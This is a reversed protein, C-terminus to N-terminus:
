VAGTIVRGYQKTVANDFSEQEADDSTMLTTGNFGHTEGRFFRKIAEGYSESGAPIVDAEFGLEHLMRAAEKAQTEAEFIALRTM